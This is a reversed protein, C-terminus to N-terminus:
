NQPSGALEIMKLYGSISKIGTQPHKGILQESTDFSVM